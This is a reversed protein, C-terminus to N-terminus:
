CTITPYILGGYSIRRVYRGNLMMEPHELIYEKVLEVDKTAILSVSYQLASIIHRDECDRYRMIVEAYYPLNKEDLIGLKGIALITTSVAKREKELDYRQLIQTLESLMARPNQVGVRTILNSSIVPIIEQLVELVYDLRNSYCIAKGIDKKIIEYEKSRFLRVLEEMCEDNRKGCVGLAIVIERLYSIECLFLNYKEQEKRRYKVLESVLTKVLHLDIVEPNANCIKRITRM